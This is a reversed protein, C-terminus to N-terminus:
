EDELRTRLYAGVGALGGVTTLIGFGPQGDTATTTTGMGGGASGTTETTNTGPAETWTTTTTTRESRKTTATTTETASETTETTATTETTTKTTTEEGTTTTEATTTTTETTEEGTTTTEATTTETTEATTTETTETTTETTEDAFLVHFDGYETYVWDTTSGKPFTATFVRGDAVVPTNAAPGYDEFEWSGFTYDWRHEGSAADIAVVTADGSDSEPNTRGGTLLTGDAVTLAGTLEADAEYTWAEEGTTADLARITSNIRFFVRGGAVTLRDAWWYRENGLSYSWQVAGDATSRAKVVADGGSENVVGFVLGDAVTQLEDDDGSVDWLVSGDDASLAVGGGYFLTGDAYCASGGIDDTKWVDEGTEPDLECANGGMKSYLRGSAVLPDGVGSSPVKHWKTEGTESDVAFFGTSDADESGRTDFYVTGNGVTPTAPASIDDRKWREDGTAPDYAAVYGESVSPSNATTVALYLTGDGVVPEVGYMEGGMDFSWDTTVNSGPGSDTTAGTRGANGRYTTWPGTSEGTGMATHAFETGVTASAGLIGVAKLFERRHTRAM